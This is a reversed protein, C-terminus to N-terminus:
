GSQSRMETEIVCSYSSRLSLHQSAIWCSTMYRELASWHAVASLNPAMRRPQRRARGYFFRYGGMSDVLSVPECRAADSALRPVPPSEVYFLRCFPRVQTYLFAM